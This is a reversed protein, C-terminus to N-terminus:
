FPIDDIDFPEPDRVPRAAADAEDRRDLAAHRAAIWAPTLEGAQLAREIFWVAMRGGKLQREEACTKALWRVDFARHGHPGEAEIARPDLTWWFTMFHDNKWCRYVKVGELAGVLADRRIKSSIAM